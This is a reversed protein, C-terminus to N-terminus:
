KEGKDKSKEEGLLKQKQEPTLVAMQDRRARARLEAVKALLPQVEEYLKRDIAVLKAKQDPTLALLKSWGTSVKGKTEQAEAGLGILCVLAVFTFLYRMPFDEQRKETGLDPRYV